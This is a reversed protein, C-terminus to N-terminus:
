GRERAAAAFWGFAQLAAPVLDPLVVAGDARIRDADGDALDALMVPTELWLGLHGPDVELHFQLGVASGARFAQVPTAASAALLTAGSPLDVADSHWHLVPPRPGLPALAPDDALVEVPAFGIETGHRRHVPAGLARALLQMGLCVALVPVDADVADALLRREAALGAHGAEDDADQAGGMVVVGALRDVPPLHPQRSDVVTRATVPVDSLARAILGPGEHPAHTLVLVPRVTM